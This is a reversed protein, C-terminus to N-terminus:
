RYEEPIIFSMIAIFTVFACPLDGFHEENGIIDIFFSLHFGEVIVVPLLLKTQDFGRFCYKWIRGLQIWHHRFVRRCVNIFRHAVLNIDSLGMQELERVTPPDNAMNVTKDVASNLNILLWPKLQLECNIVESLARRNVLIKYIKDRNSYYLSTQCPYLDFHRITSEVNIVFIADILRIFLPMSDTGVVVIGFPVVVIQGFERYIINRKGIVFGNKTYTLLVELSHVINTIFKTNSVCNNIGCIIEAIRNNQKLKLKYARIPNMEYYSSAASLINAYSQAAIMQSM